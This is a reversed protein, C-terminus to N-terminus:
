VLPTNRGTKPACPSHTPHSRWKDPSVEGLGLAEHLTETTPLKLESLLEPIPPSSVGLRQIERDFM